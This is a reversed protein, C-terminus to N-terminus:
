CSTRPHGGVPRGCLVHRLFCSHRRPIAKQRFPHVQPLLLNCSIYRYSENELYHKINTCKNKESSKHNCCSVLVSCRRDSIDPMNKATQATHFIKLSSYPQQTWSANQAFQLFKNSSRIRTSIYFALAAECLQQCHSWEEELAQLLHIFAYLKTIM